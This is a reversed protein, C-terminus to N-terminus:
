NDNTFEIEETNINGYNRNNRLDRDSIYNGTKGRKEAM